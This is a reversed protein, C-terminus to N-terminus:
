LGGFGLGSWERSIRLVDDGGGYNGGQTDQLEEAGNNYGASAKPRRGGTCTTAAAVEHAIASKALRTAANAAGLRQLVPRAPSIGRRGSDRRGPRQLAAAAGKSQASGGCCRCSAGAAVPQQWAPGSGPLSRRSNWGHGATGCSRTALLEPQVSNSSSAHRCAYIPLRARPLPGASATAPHPAHLASQRAGSLCCPLVPAHLPEAPLCCKFCSIISWCQQFNATFKLAPANHLGFCFFSDFPPYLFAVKHQKCLGM